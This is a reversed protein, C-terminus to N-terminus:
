QSKPVNHCAPCMQQCLRASSRYQSIDFWLENYVDISVADLIQMSCICVMQIISYLLLLQNELTNMDSESTVDFM